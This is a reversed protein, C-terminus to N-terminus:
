RKRPLVVHSSFRQFIRDEGFSRSGCISRAPALKGSGIAIATAATAGSREPSREGYDAGTRQEGEFEMLREAVHSLLERVIEDQAGKEVLEALAISPKAM